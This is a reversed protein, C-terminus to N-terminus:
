WILFLFFMQLCIFVFLVNWVNFESQVDEDETDEESEVKKKGEEEENVEVKDKDPEIM